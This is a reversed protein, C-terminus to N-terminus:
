SPGSWLVTALMDVAQGMESRRVRVPDAAPKDFPKPLGRFRVHVQAGKARIDLVEYWRGNASLVEDTAVAQGWTLEQERPADPGAPHEEADLAAVAAELDGWAPPFSAGTQDLDAELMARAAALVAREAPTAMLLRGAV